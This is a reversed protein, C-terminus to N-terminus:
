SVFTDDDNDAAMSHQRRSGDARQLAPPAGAEQPGSARRRLFEAMDKASPKAFDKWKAPKTRKLRQEEQRTLFAEEPFTTGFSEHLFHDLWPTCFAAMEDTPTRSRWGTLLEICAERVRGKEIDLIGVNKLRFRRGPECYYLVIRAHLKDLLYEKKRGWSDNAAKGLEREIKGTADSTDKIWRAYLARRADLSADPDAEFFDDFEIRNEQLLRDAEDAPTPAVKTGQGNSKTVVQAFFKALVVFSQVRKESPSLDNSLEVDTLRQELKEYDIEIRPESVDDEAKRKGSAMM